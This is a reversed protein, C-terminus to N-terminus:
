VTPHPHSGPPNNAPTVSVGYNYQYQFNVQRLTDFGSKADRYLTDNGTGGDITAFGANPNGINLQDDGAGLDVSLNQCTMGHQSNPDPTKDGPTSVLEGLVVYDNGAGTSINVNNKAFFEDLEVIDFGAGTQINANRGVSTGELWIGNGVSNLDNILLDRQIQVYDFEVKNVSGGLNISCDNNGGNYTGVGVGSEFMGVSDHGSGGTVSLNGSIFASNLTLSNNGDGLVVNLSAPLTMYGGSSGTGDFTLADDGSKFIASISGTVNFAQNAKGNVTTGSVGTVEFQNTGVQQIVIQDNGNDGTISLGHNVVAATVNGALNAPAVSSSLHAGMSAALNAAMLQRDELQQFSLKRSHNIKRSTM